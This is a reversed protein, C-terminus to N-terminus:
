KESEKEELQHTRIEIGRRKEVLRAFTQLYTGRDCYAQYFAEAARYIREASRVRDKLDKWEPINRAVYSHVDEKNVGGEWQKAKKLEAIAARAKVVWEGFKYDFEDELRRLDDRAVALIYGAMRRDESVELILERLKADGVRKIDLQLKAVLKPYVERIPLHDLEENLIAYRKPRTPKEITPVSVPEAAKPQPKTKVKRVKKVKAM